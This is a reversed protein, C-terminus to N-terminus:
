QWSPGRAVPQLPRGRKKLNSLDWTHVSPSKSFSYTEFTGVIGLPHILRMWTSRFGEPPCPSHSGSGFHKFRLFRLVKAVHGLEPEPEDLGMAQAISLSNRLMNVTILPTYAISDRRLESWNWRRRTLASWPGIAEYSCKRRGPSTTLVGQFITTAAFLLAVVGIVVTVVFSLPDWNFDDNADKEQLQQLTHLVARLLCDTTNIPSSEPCTTGPDM